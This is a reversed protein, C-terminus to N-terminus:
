KGETYDYFGKGSKRGLHGARVMQRILPCNRFKPDGFERHFVDCVYEQVDLGIMDLLALPGIPMNGGLKMATDIDEPSGVGEYVAWAAENLYPVILRNFLFGTTDKARVAVKGMREGTAFAVEFADDETLPTRVVEVLKMMPVPNFYHMGVVRGPRGSARAMETVSLSSTNTALIAEPRCIENLEAFLANKVELKEVVAEIVLDCSAMDALETTWTLRGLAADREAETIKEKKLIRALSKEIAARGRDLAAQDLDRVVVKLGGQAAVQAIGAGMTGAGVVGVTEVQM